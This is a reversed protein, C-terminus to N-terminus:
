EDCIDMIFRIAMAAVQIAEKRMLEKDVKAPKKYVEQKLEDFEEMIVALGEHGSHFRPYTSTARTYEQRIAMEIITYNNM